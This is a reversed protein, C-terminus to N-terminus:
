QKHQHRDEPSPLAARYYQMRNIACSSRNKKETNRKQTEKRHIRHNRQTLPPYHFGGLKERIM